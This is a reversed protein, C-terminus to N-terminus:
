VAFSLPHLPKKAPPPFKKRRPTAKSALISSFIVFGSAAVTSLICFVRYLLPPTDRWELGRSLPSYILHGHGCFLDSRRNFVLQFINHLDPGLAGAVLLQVLSGGQHQAVQHHFLAAGVAGLHGLLLFLADVVKRHLEQHALAQFVAQIVQPQQFGKGLRQGGKAGRRFLQVLAFGVRAQAVATQAPQRGTVQVPHGGVAVVAGAIGDQVFVADKLLLQHVAGLGLQRIVPQRAAFDPQPGVLLVRHLDLEAPPQLFAPVLAVQHLLIDVVFRHQGDGVIHVNGAIIGLCDAHQPQPLGFAGADIHFAKVVAVVQAGEALCGPGLGDALDQVGVIVVLLALLQPQPLLIEQHASRQRLDGAGVHLAVAGHFIKRLEVRDMDVIGVGGQGDRLQHADQHVVAAVAPFLAPLNYVRGKRIGVMGDHRLRQFLPIDGQELLQQGTDVLDHLLDVAAPICPHPFLEAAGGGLDFLHLDQALALHAHCVQAHHAAVVDVANGLQVTLDQLVVQEVLKVPQHRLLEAIHGVANGAAAPQHLGVWAQIAKDAVADTISVQVIKVQQGAQAGIHVVLFAQPLQGLDLPQVLLIKGAVQLVLPADGDIGLRQEIHLDLAQMLILALVQVRQLDQVM